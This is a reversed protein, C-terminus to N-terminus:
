RSGQPATSDPAISTSYDEYLLIKNIPNEAERSFTNGSRDHAMLM